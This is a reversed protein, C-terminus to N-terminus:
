GTAEPATDDPATDDTAAPAGTTPSAPAVLSMTTTTGASPDRGNVSECIPDLYQFLSPLVEDITPGGVAPAVNDDIPVMRLAKMEALAERAEAPVDETLNAELRELLPLRPDVRPPATTTPGAEGLNTAPLRPEGKDEEDTYSKLSECMQERAFAAEDITTTTIQTGSDDGSCGSLAGLTLMCALLGPVTTTKRM